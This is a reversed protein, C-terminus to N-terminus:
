AAVHVTMADGAGEGLAEQIAASVREIADNAPLGVFLASRSGLVVILPAYTHAKGLDREVLDMADGHMALLAPKVAAEFFACSGCGKRKYVVVRARGPERPESAATKALSEAVARAVRESRARAVPLGVWTVAAAAVAAVVAIWPAVDGRAMSAGLAGAACAAVFLCPPCAVRSRALTAVLAAHAGVAAALGGGIAPCGDCACAFPFALLAGYLVAGMPALPVGGALRSAGACAACSDSALWAWLSGACAAAVLWTVAAGRASGRPAALALAVVGAWLVLMAVRKGYPPGWGVARLARKVPDRAEALRAAFARREEDIPTVQIVSGTWTACFRERAWPSVEGTLPDGVTAHTADFAHLVAYREAGAERLQVLLPLVVDPLDEYGGEMAVAEFGLMRAVVLTPGEEAAAPAGQNGLAIAEDVSLAVGHHASV